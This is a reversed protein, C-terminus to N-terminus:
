NNESQKKAWRQLMAFECILITSILSGFIYWCVCNLGGIAYTIFGAGFGMALPMGVAAFFESRHKWIVHASIMAVLAGILWCVIEISVFNLAEM